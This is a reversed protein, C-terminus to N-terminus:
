KYCHARGGAQVVLAKLPFLFTTPRRHTLTQKIKKGSASRMSYSHNHTKTDQAVKSDRCWCLSSCIKVRHSSTDQCWASNFHEQSYTKSCDNSVLSQFPRLFFILYPNRYISNWIKCLVMWHCCCTNSLVTFKRLIPDQWYPQSETCHNLSQLVIDQWGAKWCFVTRGVAFM